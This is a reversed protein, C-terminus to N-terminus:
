EECVTLQGVSSQGFEPRAVWWPGDAELGLREGRFEARAIAQGDARRLRIEVQGFGHLDLSWGADAASAEVHVRPDAVLVTLGPTSLVTSLRGEEVTLPLWEGGLRLRCVRRSRAETWDTNLLHVTTVESDPEQHVTYYVDGSADELEM